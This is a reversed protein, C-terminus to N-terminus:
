YLQELKDKLALMFLATDQSEYACNGNLDASLDEGPGVSSRKVVESKIYSFDRGDIVGAEKGDIYRTMDGALLPYGSFDFTPSTNVDKTLGGIEGGSVGYFDVQNNKGYKTQLHKPGKIFVALSNTQNFGNLAVNAKYVALGDRSEQTKSLVIDNYTKSVGNSALVMVQVPWNTCMAESTVGSFSMKFNLIQVTGTPPLTPSPPVTPVPTSTAVATTGVTIMLKEYNVTFYLPTTGDNGVAQSSALLIEGQGNSLGQLEITGIEFVGKPLQGTTKNSNYGTLTIQSGSVSASQIVSFNTGNMTTKNVKVYSNFNLKLDIGSLYTAGSDAMLKVTRIGGVAVASSAPEFYLRLSSAAKVKKLGGLVGVIGVILMIPLIKRM